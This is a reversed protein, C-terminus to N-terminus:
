AKPGGGLRKKRRKQPRGPQTPGKPASTALTINSGSLTVNSQEDVQRTRLLLWSSKPHSDFCKLPPLVMLSTDCLWLAEEKKSSLNFLLKMTNDPETREMRAIHWGGQSQQGYKIAIFRGDHDKINFPTQLSGFTAPVKDPLFLNTRLLEELAMFCASPEEADDEDDDEQSEPHQPLPAYIDRGRFNVFWRPNILAEVSLDGPSDSTCFCRVSMM